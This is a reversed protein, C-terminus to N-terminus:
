RERGANEKRRELLYSALTQNYETAYARARLNFSFNQSRTTFIRFRQRIVKTGYIEKLRPYPEIGPTTKHRDTAVFRYDRKAIAARADEQPHAFEPYLLDIGAFSDQAHIPSALAMGVFLFICAPLFRIMLAPLM